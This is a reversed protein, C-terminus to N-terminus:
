SSVRNKVVNSNYDPNQISKQLDFNDTHILFNRNQTRKGNFLYSFFKLNIIFLLTLQKNDM